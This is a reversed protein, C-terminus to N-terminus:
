PPLVKVAVPRNLKQDLAEYVLGMGGAGLGQQIRYHGLVSGPALSDVAFTMITRTPEVACLKEM